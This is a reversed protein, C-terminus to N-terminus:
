PGQRSFCGLGRLGGLVAGRRRRLGRFNEDVLRCRRLRGRVFDRRGAGLEVLRGLGLLRLERAPLPLLGLAGLELLAVLLGGLTRGLAFRLELAQLLFEGAVREVPQLASADGHLL